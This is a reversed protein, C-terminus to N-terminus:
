MGDATVSLWLFGKGIVAESPVRCCETLEVCPLRQLTMVGRGHIALARVVGSWSHDAYYGGIGAEVGLSGNNSGSVDGNSGM